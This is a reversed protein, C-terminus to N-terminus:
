GMGAVKGVAILGSGLIVEFIVLLMRVKHWLWFM